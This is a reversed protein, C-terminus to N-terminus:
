MRCQSLVQFHGWNKFTRFFTRSYIQSATSFKQWVQLRLIITMAIESADTANESQVSPKLFV